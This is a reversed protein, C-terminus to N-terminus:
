RKKAAVPEAVAAGVAVLGFLVIALVHVATCWLCIKEITFLESYILYLVFLVGIATAVIRAWWLAPEPRRWIVPLCLVTMAVFFALGLDAVPIGLFKSQASTTVQLCNVVGNDACALTKSATYHEFTLYASVALGLVSVILSALPLWVPVVRGDVRQPAEARPVM